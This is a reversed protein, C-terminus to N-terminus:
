LVDEDDFPMDRGGQRRRQKRYEDLDSVNEDRRAMEEQRIMHEGESMYRLGAPWFFATYSGKSGAQSRLKEVQVLVKDGSGPRSEDDTLRNLSVGNQAWQNISSGGRVDHISVQKKRGRNDPYLTKPHLVVWLHVPVRKVFRKMQKMAHKAKESEKRPNDEGIFDHLHDFVVLRVGHTRVMYEVDGLFEEISLSTIDEGTKPDRYHIIFIPLRDVEEVALDYQRESIGASGYIRGGSRLSVLMGLTDRPTLEFPAFLVPIHQEAAMGYGLATSFTSKGDGTGGIFSTVEHPRLGGMINTLDPWPTPYGEPQEAFLHKKLESGYDGPRSINKPAMTEGARISAEVNEVCIVAGNAELWSGAGSPPIIRTCRQGGLIRAARAAAQQGTDTADHCLIISTADIFAETWYQPWTDPVLRDQDLYRDDCAVVYPFGLQALVMASWEDGTVMVRRDPAKEDALGKLCDVNFPVRVCAFEREPNSSVKIPDKWYHITTVEGEYLHPVTFRVQDKPTGLATEGDPILDCGIMFRRLTAMTLGHFNMLSVMANHREIGSSFGLQRHYREAIGRPPRHGWTLADAAQQRELQERWASASRVDFRADGLEVKLNLLSCIANRTRCWCRGTGTDIYLDGPADCFPCCDIIKIWGPKQRLRIYKWGKQDCYFEAETKKMSM